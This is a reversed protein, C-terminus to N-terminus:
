RDFHKHPSGDARCIDGLREKTGEQKGRSAPAKSPSVEEKAPEVVGDAGSPLVTLHLMLRVMAASLGEYMEPYTLRLASGVAYLKPPQSAELRADLDTDGRMTAGLGRPPVKLGPLQQLILSLSLARDGGSRLKEGQADRLPV